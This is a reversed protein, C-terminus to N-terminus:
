NKLEFEIKIIKGIQYDFLVKNMRSVIKGCEIAGADNASGKIFCYLFLKFQSIMKGPQFPKIILEEENSLIALNKAVNMVADNTAM